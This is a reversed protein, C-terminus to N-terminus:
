GEAIAAHLKDRDAQLSSLDRRRSELQQTAEDIQRTLDALQERAMDLRPQLEAVESEMTSIVQRLAHAQGPLDADVAQADAANGSLWVSVSAALFVRYWHCVIVCGKVAAIIHWAPKKDVIKHCALRNQVISM